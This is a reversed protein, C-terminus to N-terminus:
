KGGVRKMAKRGREALSKYCRERGYKTPRDGVPELSPTANWGTWRATTICRERDEFWYVIELTVLDGKGLLSKDVWRLELQGCEMETVPASEDKGGQDGREKQKRHKPM